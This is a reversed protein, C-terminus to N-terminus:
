QIFLSVEQVERSVTLGLTFEQAMKARMSLRGHFFSKTGAHFPHALGISHGIEYFM